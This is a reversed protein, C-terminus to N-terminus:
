PIGLKKKIAAARPDKPNANVWALAAQDQPSIAEVTAPGAKSRPTFVDRPNLGMDEAYGSYEDVLSDYRRKRSEYIGNAADSYQRRQDSNLRTGAIVKNYANRVRDPVSASNEATAFEGERVVSNPDLMKVYSYILSLDDQPTPNKRKAIDAIVDYSSAVDNFAKVDPLGNFEKRLNTRQRFGQAGNDVTIRTTAGTKTKLWDTYSGKFGGGEPTKAFNYEDVSAPLNVPKPMEPAPAGVTKGFTPSNPNTDVQGGTGAAAFKPLLREKEEKINAAQQQMVQPMFANYVSRSTEGGQMLPALKQMQEQPTTARGAVTALESRSVGPLAVSAAVDQPGVQGPLSPVNIDFSTPAAPQKSLALQQFDPLAYFNKLAAQAMEQDSKKLDAEDAASKGSLYSGGFSTLAKALAGYPSVPATIGGATSVPMEQQSMEMLMQALKQQRALEASRSTYDGSIPAFLSVM